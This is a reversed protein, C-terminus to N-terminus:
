GFTKTADPDNLLALLKAVKSCIGAIDEDNALSYDPEFAQTESSHDGPMLGARDIRIIIGGNRRIVECENTFRVDECVVDGDPLGAEWAKVWLDPHIMKRGWETGLTQMAYRPTAGGLLDTSVEKLDGEIHDDSLGLCRIMDKLPKGMRHRQFGDERELFEAVTSKGSGMLGTLGVLMRPAEMLLSYQHHHTGKFDASITWGVAEYRDIDKHRVYRYTRATM